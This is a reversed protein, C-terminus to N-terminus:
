RDEHLSEKAFKQQINQRPLVFQVISNLVRADFALQLHGADNLVLEDAGALKAAEQPSVINDATSWINLVPVDHSVAKAIFAQLWRTDPRAPGARRSSVWHAMTTGHHPAGICIIKSVFRARRHAFLNALVGGMSHGILIVQKTQSRARIRMLKREFERLSKPMSQYFPDLSVTYVREVQSQVLAHRVRTWMGANCLFGHVLVVVPGKQQGADANARCVSPPALERAFWRLSAYLPQAFTYLYLTTLVEGALAHILQLASKARWAGSLLFTTAVILCRWALAAVLIILCAAAPHWGQRYLAIAVITSLIAEFSLILLLIGSLV